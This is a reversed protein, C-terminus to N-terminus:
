LGLRRITRKITKGLTKYLYFGVGLIIAITIIGELSFINELTVYKIMFLFGALAFFLAQLYEEMKDTKTESMSFSGKLHYKESKRGIPYLWYVGIVTFSDAIFHSIFGVIIGFTSILSWFLLYTVVALICM